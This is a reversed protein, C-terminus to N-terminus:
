TLRWDGLDEGLYRRSSEMSDFSLWTASTTKIWRPRKGPTTQEYWNQASIIDLKGDGNVRRSGGSAKNWDHHTQLFSNEQSARRTRANREDLAPLYLAPLFVSLGRHSQGLPLIRVSRSALSPM